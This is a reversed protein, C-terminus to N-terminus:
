NKFLFGILMRLGLLGLAAQWWTIVPLETAVNPILVTNWAWAVGVGILAFIGLNLALVFLVVILGLCTTALTM